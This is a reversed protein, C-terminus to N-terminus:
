KYGPGWRWGSSLRKACPLRTGLARPAVLPVARHGRPSGWLSGGLARAWSHPRAMPMARGPTGPCALATHAFVRGSMAGCLDCAHAWLALCLGAHAHVRPLAMCGQVRMYVGHLAACVRTPQVPSHVCLTMQARAYLPQVRLCVCQMSRGECTHVCVCASWLAGRVGRHM